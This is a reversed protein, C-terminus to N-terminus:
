KLVHTRTLKGWQFFQCFLCPFPSGAQTKKDPDEAMMFVEDRNEPRAIVCKVNANNKLVTLLQILLRLDLKDRISCWELAKNKQHDQYNNSKMHWRKCFWSVHFPSNCCMTGNWQSPVASNINEIIFVM